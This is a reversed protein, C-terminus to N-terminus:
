RCCNQMVRRFCTIKISGVLGRREESVTRDKLGAAEVALTGGRGGLKVDGAQQGASRYRSRM